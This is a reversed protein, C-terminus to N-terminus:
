FRMLYYAAIQNSVYDTSSGDPEAVVYQWSIDVSGQPGLARNYGLTWLTTDAQYRYAIFDKNHYADDPETEDAISSFFNSSPTSSVTDGQRYEGGFRLLDRESLSYDLAIRLGADETDFVVSDADRGRGELASFVDVRDTVHSHVNLGLKYRSGSRLSSDYADLDVRGLLGFTPARFRSSTRYQFEAQVGASVRDLGNHELMNRGDLNGTVVFQKTVGLPYRFPKRVSANFAQDSVEDASDSARNLNEFHEYGAEVHVQDKRDRVPVEWNLPKGDLNGTFRLAFIQSDLGGSSHLGQYELGLQMGNHYFFDSGLGFLLTEDPVDTPTVVSAPVGPITRVGATVDGEDQYYLELRARPLAWGFSTRHPAQTLLGLVLQSTDVSQTDYQLNNLSGSESVSDLELASFEFRAYPSVLLEQRYWEYGAGLSTYWLTGDRSSKGLDNNAVDHRQTDYSLQSYGLVADLFVSSAPVYNLYAALSGSTASDRTGDTGIDTRGDAFGAGLGVALADGFWRDYGITLGDSSFTQSSGSSSEELTGFHLDGGIWWSSRALSGDEDVAHLAQGVDLSQETALRALVAALAAEKESGARADGEEESARSVFRDIPTQRRSHREARLADMRRRVNGIQARSFRKAADIQARLLSRVIPDESPDAVGGSLPVTRTIVPSAVAISATKFGVSTPAFAVTISCTGNPHALSPAGTTCTGLSLNFQGPDAGGLTISTLTAAGPPPTGANVVGVVITRAASVTGVGQQGFGVPASTLPTGHAPPVGQDISVAICNVDGGCEARAVATVLLSALAILASFLIRM